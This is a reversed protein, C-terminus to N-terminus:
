PLDYCEQRVPRGHSNRSHEYELQAPRLGSNRSSLIKGRDPVQITQDYRAGAKINESNKTHNTSGASDDAGWKTPAWKEELPKDSVPGKLTQALATGALLSLIAGFAIAAKMFTDERDILYITFNSIVAGSTSVITPFPAADTHSPTGALTLALICIRVLTRM